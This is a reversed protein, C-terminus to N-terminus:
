QIPPPIMKLADIQKEAEARGMQILKEPDQTDFIHQEINIPLLLDIQSEKLRYNTSDITAVELSRTVLDFFFQIHEYFRVFPESTKKQLHEITKKAQNFALQTPNLDSEDLNEKKTELEEITHNQLYKKYIDASLKQQSRFNTINVAINFTNEGSPLASVPLNNLLGGDVLLKGDILVPAFFPPIASSALLATLLPGERLTIEKGAEIDAATASFPIKLDSFQADSIYKKLIKILDKPHFLGGNKFDIDKISFLKKQSAEQIFEEIVKTDQHLAYLGGIIAGMSTGSISHIPINNEELVQLVGLHAFGNAGGGSLALGIKKNIIKM